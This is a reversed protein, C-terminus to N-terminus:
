KWVGSSWCQVDKASNNGGGSIVDRVVIFVEM